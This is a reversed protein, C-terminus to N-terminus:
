RIEISDKSFGMKVLIEAVKKRHDGQLEITNDKVTGGCACIDKLKKALEKLDIVSADFGEIITMLKGFRRKTVYIKIKQEEKAIEECVCLEKPLGCRPCIEPM